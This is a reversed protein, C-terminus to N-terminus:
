VAYEKCAKACEQCVKACEQCHDNHHKKCEDACNQCAKACLQLMEKSVKSSSAVLAMTLGCIEACEKDLRICEKMMMVDKENLCANFCYNCAGQCLGLKQVLEM